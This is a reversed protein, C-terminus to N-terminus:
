KGLFAAPLAPLPPSRQFLGPAAAPLGTPAAKGGPAGPILFPPMREGARSSAGRPLAAASTAQGVAPPPQRLELPAAPPTQALPQALALLQASGCFWCRESLGARNRLVHGDGAWARPVSIVQVDHGSLVIHESPILPSLSFLSLAM